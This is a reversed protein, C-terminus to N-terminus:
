SEETNSPERTKEESAHSDVVKRISKVYKNNGLGGLTVTTKDGKKFSNYVSESVIDTYIYGTEDDVLTLIFTTKGPTKRTAGEIPKRDLIDDANYTTELKEYQSLFIEDNYEGFDSVTIDREKTWSDVKYIYYIDYRTIPISVSGYQSTFDAANNVDRLKKETKVDYAGNELEWGSKTETTYRDIRIDRKWEMNTITMSHEKHKPKYKEVTEKVKPNKKITNIVKPIVYSAVAGAVVINGAKEKGVAKTLVKSAVSGIILNGIVDFLTVNFM